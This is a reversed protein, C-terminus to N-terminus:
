QVYKHHDNRHQFLQQVFHDNSYETLNSQKKVRMIGLFPIFDKRKGVSAGLYQSALAFVIKSLTIASLGVFGTVGQDKGPM